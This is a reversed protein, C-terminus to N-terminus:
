NKVFKMYLYYSKEKNYIKYMINPIYMYPMNFTYDSDIKSKNNIKFKEFNTFFYFGLLDDRRLVYGNQTFLEPDSENLIYMDQENLEHQPIVLM